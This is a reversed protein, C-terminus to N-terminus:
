GGEDPAPPPRRREGPKGHRSPGLKQRREELRARQEETLVSDLETRLSDFLASTERHFDDTIENFLEAHRTLIGRIEDEKDPAPDILKVMREVFVERHRMDRPRGAFRHVVFGSGLAGIVIGIVLTAVIIMATKTKTTM